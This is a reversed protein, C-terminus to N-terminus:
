THYIKVIETIPKRCMPCAKLNRSCGMCVALHGCRLIVADIEHDMCVRCINSEDPEDFPNKYGGDDLRLQEFFPNIYDSPETTSSTSTASASSLSTATITPTTSTMLPRLPPSMANPTPCAMSLPRPSSRLSRPLPVSDEQLVASPDTLEAVAQDGFRRRTEEMLREILSNPDITTRRKNTSDLSSVTSPPLSQLVDEIIGRSFGMEELTSRLSDEKMVVSATNNSTLGGGASVTRTLMPNYHMPETLSPMSRSYTHSTSSSAPRHSPSSIPRATVKPSRVPRPDSASTIKAAHDLRRKARNNEAKMAKRNARRSRRAEKRVERSETQGM